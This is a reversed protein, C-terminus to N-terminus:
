GIHDDGNVKPEYDWAHTADSKMTLQRENYSELKVLEQRSPGANLAPFYKSAQTGTRVWAQPQKYGCGTSLPKQMHFGIGPSERPRM